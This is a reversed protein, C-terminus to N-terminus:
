EPFLQSCPINELQILKNLNQRLTDDENIKINPYINEKANDIALTLILRITDYFLSKDNKIMM